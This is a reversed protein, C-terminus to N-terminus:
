SLKTTWRLSARATDVGKLLTPTRDQRCGSCLPMAVSQSTVNFSERQNTKLGAVFASFVM